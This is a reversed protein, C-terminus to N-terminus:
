GLPPTPSTVGSSGSSLAALRREAAEMRVGLASFGPFTEEFRQSAINAFRAVHPEVLTGFHERLNSLTVLDAFSSRLPHSEWERVLTVMAKWNVADNGITHSLRSLILKLHEKVEAVSPPLELTNLRSEIRDINIWVNSIDPHDFSPSPQSQFRSMANAIDQRVVERFKTLNEGQAELACSVLEDCFTDWQKDWQLKWDLISRVHDFLIKDSAQLVDIDDRIVQLAEEVKPSSPSTSFDFVPEAM